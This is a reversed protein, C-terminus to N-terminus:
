RVGANAPAAVHVRSGRWSRDSSDEVGSESRVSVASVASVASVPMVSVALVSGVTAASRAHLVAVPPEKALMTQM